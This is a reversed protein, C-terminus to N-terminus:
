EFLCLQEDYIATRVVKTWAPNIQAEKLFTDLFLTPNLNFVPGAACRLTLLMERGNAGASLVQIHPKIDVTRIGKKGKKEVTLETREFYEELQILVREGDTADYKQTVEYDAWRIDEPKKMAPAAKYVHIEEPLVDNLRKVIQESAVQETLRFDFSECVGEYGLALPLAFTLYVHPHFGLTHWAPLASRKLARGICRNLDLHSIYKLRGTKQYFVRVTELYLTQSM